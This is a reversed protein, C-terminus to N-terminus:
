FNYEVGIQLRRPDSVVQRAAGVTFTRQAPVVTIAYDGLNAYNFVNFVDATVGISSRGIRPFDKRFRLDVRRYAWKGFILFSKKPPSFGAPFYTSDVVGGFRPADGVDIPAGSGLTLLGSFQIGFLYPIDMIWNGVVRHREDSGGRDTHKPIGNAKPFDFPFSGDLNSLFDVGAVSRWALTYVLGAGWGIRDASPRYPRDLQLAFADYWTKADGTSYIINQIGHASINFSTCCRGATDYGFNGSNYIFIGTTRQGQYSLSAVWPGLVRRVGLSFQQSKPPKTKNDILFAEPTGTSRALASVASTDATLYSNDWPVAGATPTGNDFRTVFTPRTLKQIEDVSFDFLSRDYYIGYGGFATTKSENDLAYSFGLRPQFAGLFPKRNNGTSIYRSLDLPVPLSDNYKTLTDAVWQPTVYDTNIM